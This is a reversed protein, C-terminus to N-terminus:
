PESSPLALAAELQRFLKKEALGASSIVTDGAIIKPLTRGNIFRYINFGDTIWRQPAEAQLAQELADKGVLEEARARAEDVSPARKGTMLWDHYEPFRDREAACVAMSLEAYICSDRFEPLTNKLDPNCTAEMPVPLSVVALGGDVQDMFKHVKHYVLRCAPCNYDFLEVIVHEAQVHGLLPVQYVDLNLKGELVRVTRSAVPRGISISGGSYASGNRDVEQWEIEEMTEAVTTVPAVLVHAGIMLALVLAGPIGLKLYPHPLHKWVPAYRVVLIFTVLGFLHASMCYFCIHDIVVFQLVTLWVIFGAGIFSMVVLLSWLLLRHRLMFNMQALISTCTVALYGGVGVAAVPFMGIRGWRSGIVANCTVDGGCGPLHADPGGKWLLYSSMVLAFWATIDIAYQARPGVM